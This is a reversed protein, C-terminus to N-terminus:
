FLFLYVGNTLSNGAISLTLREKVRKPKTIPSRQLKEMSDKAYHRPALRLLM